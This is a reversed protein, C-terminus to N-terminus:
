GHWFNSPIFAKSARHQGAFFSQQKCRPRSHGNFFASITLVNDTLIVSIHARVEFTNFESEYVGDNEAIAFTPERSFHPALLCLAQGEYVMTVPKDDLYNKWSKGQQIAADRLRDRDKVYRLPCIELDTIKRSGTFDEM